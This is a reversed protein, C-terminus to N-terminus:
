DSPSINSFLPWPAITVADGGDVHAHLDGVAFEVLERAVKGGVQLGIELQGSTRADGDHHRIDQLYGIQM